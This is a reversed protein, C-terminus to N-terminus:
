FSPNTINYDNSNTRELQFWDSNSGAPAPPPFSSGASSTVPAEVVYDGFFSTTATTSPPSPGVPKTQQHQQQQQPQIQLHQVMTRPPPATASSPLGMPPRSYGLNDDSSVFGRPPFSSSAPHGVSTSFQQPFQETSGGMFAQHRNNNNNNDYNLNNKGSFSKSHALQHLPRPAYSNSNHNNNNNNNNGIVHYIVGGNVENSHQMMMEVPFDGGRGGGGSNKRVLVQPPTGGSHHQHHHHVVFSDREGGAGEHHPFAPRGRGGGHTSPFGGGPFSHAPSSSTTTTSSSSYTSYSDVSQQRHQQQMPREQPRQGQGQGQIFHNQSSPPGSTMSSGASFLGLYSDPQVPGLEQALSATPAFFEDRHQEVLSRLNHTLACDYLVDDVFVQRVDRTAQLAARIGAITLPFHVFGYGSQQLQFDDFASKKITIDKIEGFRLFVKRISAENILINLQLFLYLFILVNFWNLFFFDMVQKSLYSFHVQATPEPADMKIKPGVNMHAWGVRLFHFVFILQQRNTFGFLKSSQGDLFFLGM